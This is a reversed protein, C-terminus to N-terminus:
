CFLSDAKLYNGAQYNAYGWNYLDRPSPDKEMGYAMGLLSAELKRNGLRKAVDAASEIMKLKNAVVTDMAIAKEYYVFASDQLEPIKSAIKAMEEYDTPKIDEVDSGVESK